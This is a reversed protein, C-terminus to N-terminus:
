GLGGRRRAGCRWARAGRHVHLLENSLAEGDRHRDLDTLPTVAEQVVGGESGRMAVRAGRRHTRTESPSEIVSTLTRNSVTRTLRPADNLVHRRRPPSPAKRAVRGMSSSAARHVVVGGQMPHRSAVSDRARPCSRARGDSSPGTAARGKVPDTREPIWPGEVNRTCTASGRECM